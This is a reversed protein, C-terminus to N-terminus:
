LKEIFVELHDKCIGRYPNKTSFPMKREFGKSQSTRASQMDRKLAEAYEDFPSLTWGGKQKIVGSPSLHERLHHWINGNYEFIRPSPKQVLVWKAANPHETEWKADLDDRLKEYLPDDYSVDVKNWEERNADWAKTPISWYKYGETLKDYEPHKDDIINGKSDRV